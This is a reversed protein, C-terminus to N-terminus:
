RLSHLTVFLAIAAVFLAWILIAMGAVKIWRQLPRQRRGRAQPPPLQALDGRQWQQFRDDIV